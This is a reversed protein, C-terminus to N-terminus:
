AMGSLESPRRHDVELQEFTCSRAERDPRWRLFRAPHRLRDGDFREYAVEAVRELRIPVWDLAMDPTWRGAAGKLRGLPSPDILFGRGWPHDELPVALPSLEDLLRRRAEETFSSAVGVHRLDGSRDYLGLLLSGIAPRAELWRYGAVVVDATHERKVKVMLREGGRYPLDDRKAVVGDVGGGAYGELWGAAQDPYPTIPGLALPERASALLRELRRRREVFPRARLDEGGDVIADFAVFRAPTERRLRQVRTPAPHLRALLAAFEYAGTQNMALVEGDIAVRRQPLELIAEVIEPFYRALPRGHRSWLEVHDGGRVAIARFGDWKPEYALGPGRPLERVLRALMPEFPAAEDAV